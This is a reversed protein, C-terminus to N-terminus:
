VDYLLEYFNIMNNLKSTCKSSIKSYGQHCKCLFSGPINKCYELQKDCPNDACEDVDNECHAGNYGIQCVCGKTSDCSVAGPACNCENKCNPGWGIGNCKKKCHSRDDM